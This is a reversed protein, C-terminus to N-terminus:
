ASRLALPESERNGAFVDLIKQRAHRSLPTQNAALIRDELVAHILELSDGDDLDHMAADLVEADRKEIVPLVARLAALCANEPLTTTMSKGKRM